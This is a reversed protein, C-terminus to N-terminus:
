PAVKPDKFLDEPDLGHFIWSFIELVLVNYQAYQEEDSSSAFTLVLDLVSEREMRVVLEEQLFSQRLQEGSVAASAEPAPIALLNRVLSLGLRIIGDSRATRASVLTTFLRPTLPSLNLKARQGQCPQSALPGGAHDAGRQQPCWKGASGGQLRKFHRATRGPQGHKQRGAMHSTRATGSNNPELCLPVDTPVVRRVGYGGGPCDEGSAREAEGDSGGRQGAQYQAAPDPGSGQSSNGMKRPRLLTVAAAVQQRLASVAESGKFMRGPRAPILM